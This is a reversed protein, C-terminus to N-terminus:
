FEAFVFSGWTDEFVPKPIRNKYRTYHKTTSILIVPNKGINQNVLTTFHSV